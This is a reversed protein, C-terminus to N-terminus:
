SLVRLRKLITDTRRDADTSLTPTERIRSKKRRVRILYQSVWDSLNLKIPIKSVWVENNYILYLKITKLCLPLVWYSCHLLNMLCYTWLCTREYTWYSILWLSSFITLRKWQWRLSHQLKDFLLVLQFTNGQRKFVNVYMARFLSPPLYRLIM